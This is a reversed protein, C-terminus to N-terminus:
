RSLWRRSRCVSPASPSCVTSSRRRPSSARWWAGWGLGVGLGLVALPMNAQWAERLGLTKSAYALVPPPVLSGVAWVLIQGRIALRLIRDSNIASYALRISTVLGGEQRAPPVRPVALASVLGVGAFVTLVVAGLWPRSGALSLIVGGGATGILIALNNWLELLGNGLALREHPLVEPLIGYKAPSFVGAQIGLMGLIVLAPVGGSPVALLGAIGAAMLAVEFVKMAVIVTHKSIRDAIVGAPLSVLMLTTILFAQALAGREQGEAPTGAAGVALLVVIQKWANDNFTGFAQAILLGLLPRDPKGGAGVTSKDKTEASSDKTM